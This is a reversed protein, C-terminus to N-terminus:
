CHPETSIVMALDLMRWHSNLRARRNHWGRLMAFFSERYDQDFVSDAEDLAVTIPSELHKLINRQVLAHIKAARRDGTRRRGFGTGRM